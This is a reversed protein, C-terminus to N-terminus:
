RTVEKLIIRACLALSKTELYDRSKKYMKDNLRRSIEELTQLGKEAADPDPLVFYSKQMIERIKTRIGTPLPATGEKIKPFDKYKQLSGHNEKSLNMKSGHNGKAFNMKHDKKLQKEIDKAARRGFVLTELLSNSALRNKGHVGTHACEGAAYLRSITTKGNLDTDIGGMLYHQCPFIPILDKKMDIGCHLCRSYIMPFHNKLFEESKHTIDLYFKDSGTRRYEMMISHSVKDRPALELRDDYRHMFREYNCNKLYAGEGRVAESILFRERGKEGAFATPHFQILHLNKIEAGLEHALRIGDGTATQGNTTYKYLRGIGGTALLVYSCSTYYPETECLEVFFGNDAKTIERCLTNEAVTINKQKLVSESLTRVMEEGTSDKRHVVRRRTHGGELTLHITGDPNKDFEAGMECIKLVDSAGEDTLIQVANTNNERNGANLTDEFHIAPSDNIPDIAAAVGGQALNSNSLYLSDKSVLLISIDPSFSLAAYMGACGAGIIIVDYQKQHPQNTM